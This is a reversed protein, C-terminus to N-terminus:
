QADNVMQVAEEANLIESLHENRVIHVGDSLVVEDNGHVIQFDDDSIAGNISLERTTTSVNFTSSILEVYDNGIDDM